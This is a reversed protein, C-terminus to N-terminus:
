KNRLAGEDDASPTPDAKLVWDDVQILRCNPQTNWTITAATQNPRHNIRADATEEGASGRTPTKLPCDACPENKQHLRQYCKITENEGCAEKARAARLKKNIFLIDYTSPHVVYLHADVADLLEASNATSRAANREAGRSLFFPALMDSLFAQIDIEDPSWARERRCEEFCVFGQAKGRAIVRSQLFAMTKNARCRAAYEPTLADLTACGVSEKRDPRRYLSDVLDAPLEKSNEDLASADKAHWAFSLAYATGDDKRAYICARSLDLKRGIIGLLLGIAAGSDATAYLLRALYEYFNADFPKKRPPPTPAGEAFPTKPMREQYVAYENKGNKKVYDLARAAKTLLTDYTEGHAPYLAVGIDAAIKFVGNSESQYARRLTAMLGDLKERLTFVSAVNTTFIAFQDKGSRSIIDSKLFQRKVSAALDCVAVDGFLPGFQATVADLGDIGVLILAHTRGPASKKLRDEIFSAAASQLYLGTLADSQAARLVTERHQKDFDVDTIMGSIKYPLNQASYHAALRIKCWIFKNFANRIRIELCAYYKRNKLDHFNYQITEFFEQIIHKDDPHINKSTVLAQSFARDAPMYGFIDFLNGTTYFRDTILDWEFLIDGNYAVLTEYTELDFKKTIHRDQM